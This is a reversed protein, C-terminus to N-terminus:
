TEGAGLGRGGERERAVADVEVEDMAAAETMEEGIVELIDVVMLERLM